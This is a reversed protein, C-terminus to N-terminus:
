ELIVRLKIMRLLTGQFIFMIGVKDRNEVHVARRFRWTIATHGRRRSFAIEPSLFAWRRLFFRYGDFLIRLIHEPIDFNM